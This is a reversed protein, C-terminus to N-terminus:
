LLSTDVKRDDNTVVGPKNKNDGSGANGSPKKLHANTTLYWDMVEQPSGAVPENKDNRRHYFPKGDETHGILGESRMLTFVQEPKLAEGAAALVANQLDTDRKEADAKKAREESDKASKELAALRELAQNLEAKDGSGAGEKIKAELEAVKKKEASLNSKGEEREKILDANATKIKEAAAALAFTDTVEKALDPKGELAALIDNIPM